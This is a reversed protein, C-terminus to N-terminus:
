AGVPVLDLIYRTFVTDGDAVEVSHRDVILFTQGRALLFEAEDKYRSYRGLYRGGTYGAPLHFRAIVDFDARRHRRRDNAHAVSRVPDITTDIRRPDLTARVLRRHLARLIEADQLAHGTM